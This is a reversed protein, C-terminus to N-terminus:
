KTIENYKTQTLGTCCHECNCDILYDSFLYMYNQYILRNGYAALLLYFRNICIKFYGNQYFNDLSVADALAPELYEGSSMLNIYDICSNHDDPSKLILHQYHYDIKNIANDTLRHIIEHMGSLAIRDLFGNQMYNEYDLDSIVCLCPYKSNSPTTGRQCCEIIYTYEPINYETMLYPPFWEKNGGIILFIDPEVNEIIIDNIFKIKYFFKLITFDFAKILKNKLETKMESDIPIRNQYQEYFDHIYIYLTNRKFLIQNPAEGTGCDGDTFCVPHQILDWQYKYLKTSTPHWTMLNPTNFEDIGEHRTFQHLLGFAGHGLEHGATKTFTQAQSVKDVFIFAFNQFFPMIGQQVPNEPESVLFIYYKNPDFNGSSMFNNILAQMDPSYQNGNEPWANFGETQDAQTYDFNNIQRINQNVNWHIVAQGYIKNISDTFQSLNIGGPLNNGNVSIIVLNKTKEPYTVLNLM